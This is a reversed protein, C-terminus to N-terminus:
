LEETEEEPNEILKKWLLRRKIRRILFKYMASALGGIGAMMSLGFLSSSNAVLGTDPVDRMKNRFAIRRNVTMRRVRNADDISSGTDNSEVEADPKVNDRHDIYSVDYGAAPTQVIIFNYELPVDLIELQQDHMLEFTAFGDQDLTLTGSTATSEGPTTLKTKFENIKPMHAEGSDELYVTFEFLKNRQAYPGVVENSITLSSTPRYILHINTPSSIVHPINVDTNDQRNTNINLAWNIFQYGPHM